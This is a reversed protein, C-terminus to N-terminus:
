AACQRERREADPEGQEKLTEGLAEAKGLECAYRVCARKDVGEEREDLHRRGRGM